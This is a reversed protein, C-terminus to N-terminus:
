RGAVVAGTVDNVDAVLTGLEERTMGITEFLCASVDRSKQRLARDADTRARFASEAKLHRQGNGDGTGVFACHLVQDLFGM